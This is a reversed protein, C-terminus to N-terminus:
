KEKNTKENKNLNNLYIQLDALHKSINCLPLVKLNKITRSVVPDSLDALQEIKTFYASLTNLNIRDIRHIPQNKLFNYLNNNKM